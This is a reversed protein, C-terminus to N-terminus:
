KGTFVVDAYPLAKPLVGYEVLISSVNTIAAESISGDTSWTTTVAKVSAEIVARDSDPSLQIAFATAVEPKAQFEKLARQVAKVVAAVVQPNAKAYAAQVQVCTAQFPSPWEKAIAQKTELDFFMKGFGEIIAQRPAPETGGIADVQGSKLASLQTAPNPTNTFKVDTLAVGNKKVLYKTAIESWGGIAVGITKGRLAGWDGPTINLKSSVVLATPPTDGISVVCQTPKGAISALVAREFALGAFQVANSALATAADQASDIQTFTANPLGAEKFYGKDAAFRIPLWTTSPSAAIVVAAESVLGSGPAAATAPTAPAAGGCASSLLSMALTIAGTKSAITRWVQMSM